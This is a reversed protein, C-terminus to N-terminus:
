KEPPPRPTVYAKAVIGLSQLLLQRNNERRIEQQQQQRQADVREDERRRDRAEERENREIRDDHRQQALARREEADREREERRQEVAQQATERREEAALQTAEKRLQADEKRQASEVQFQMRMMEMYTDSTTPTRRGASGSCHPPTPAVQPIAPPVPPVPPVRPLGPHRIPAELPNPEGIGVAPAVFVGAELDFDENGAGVDAREGIQNFIHIARRVNPSCTPDGTPVTTRRLQNYKRKISDVNRNQSVYARYHQQQVCEWDWNSIPEITAMVDLMDGVETDTWNQRRRAVAAAQSAAAHYMRLQVANMAAPNMVVPAAVAARAPPVAVHAVAALAAARM